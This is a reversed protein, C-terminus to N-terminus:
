QAARKSLRQEMWAHYKSLADRVSFESLFRFASSVIFPHEGLRGAYENAVDLAECLPDYEVRYDFASAYEAMCAVVAESVEIKFFERRGSVRSDELREHVAKELYSVDAVLMEFELKFPEPVGTQYLGKARKEGGHISRGIKVLGPMAPNSLVYIYGSDGM